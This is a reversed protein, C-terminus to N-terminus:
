CNTVRFRMFKASSTFTNPLDLMHAHIKIIYFILGREIDMLFCKVKYAM